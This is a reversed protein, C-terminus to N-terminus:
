AYVSIGYDSMIRKKSEVNGLELLAMSVLHKVLEVDSGARDLRLLTNELNERVKKYQNKM